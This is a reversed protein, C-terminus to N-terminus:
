KPSGSLVLRRDSGPIHIPELWRWDARKVIDAADHAGVWFIARGAPDLHFKSWVLSEKFSGLARVTSFDYVEEKAVDEMRTRIAKVTSLDLRRCVESLFAVKRGNSEILTVDLAPRIIKLALGPFGAGSGLDALRGQDLGLVEAAFFSEGFHFRIIEDVETVTTLAIRRNWLLLLNVYARIKECMVSDPIVRYPQLLSAIQWDTIISNM